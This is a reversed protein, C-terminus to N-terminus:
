EVSGGKGTTRKKLDELFERDQGSLHPPATANTFEGKMIVAKKGRQKMLTYARLEDRRHLGTQFGDFHRKAYREQLHKGLFTGSLRRHLMQDTLYSPSRYNEVFLNEGFCEPLGNIESSRFCDVLFSWYPLSLKDGEDTDANLTDMAVRSFPLGVAQKYLQVVDNDLNIDDFYKAYAITLWQLTHAYEGHSPGTADKFLYGNGVVGGFLSVANGTLTVNQAGKNSLVVIDEHANKFSCGVKGESASDLVSFLDLFSSTLSNKLLLGKRFRYMEQMDKSVELFFHEFRARDALFCMVTAFDKHYERKKAPFLEDLMSEVSDVDDLGRIWM